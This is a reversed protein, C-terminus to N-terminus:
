FVVHSGLTAMLAVGLVISVTVPRPAPAAAAAVAVAVFAHDELVREIALQGATLM